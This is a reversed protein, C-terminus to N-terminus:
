WDNFTRNGFDQYCLLACLHVLVFSLYFPSMLTWVQSISWLLGLAICVGLILALKEFAHSLANYVILYGILGLLAYTLVIPFIGQMRFLTADALLVLRTTLIRHENHQAFLDSLSLTGM